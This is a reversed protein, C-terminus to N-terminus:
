EILDAEINMIIQVDRGVMLGGNGLPVNWKIGFDERNLVTWASFGMGTEDEPSKVPGFFEMTLTVQSTIGCIDLAGTIRCSNYNHVACSTSRFTIKPYKGVDLFDQSRLHEDRKPIGTYIGATDIELEVTTGTINSPDFEITGAIKNFQGRVDTIMMHKVVFAAVSHDPDIKWKKMTITEERM